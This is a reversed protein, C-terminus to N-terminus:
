YYGVCKGVASFPNLSMMFLYSLHSYFHNFLVDILYKSVVKTSSLSTSTGADAIRGTGTAVVAAVCGAEATEM